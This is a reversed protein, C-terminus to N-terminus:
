AHRRLAEGTLRCTTWEELRRAGLSEYFTIASTNWDLVAWEMRGYGRENAIHALRLMMARGIGRGRHAPLVFIDELYLGPKALFTSYTTFYLSFGVADQGEFALLCEAAPRGGEPFLTALLKEETAEVEHSLKEFEALGRIFGLILPTDSATAPRITM